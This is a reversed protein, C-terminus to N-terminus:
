GVTLRAAGALISWPFHNGRVTFVPMNLSM